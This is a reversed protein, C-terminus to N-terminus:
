VAAKQEEGHHPRLVSEESASAGLVAGDGFCLILVYGNSWPAVCLSFASGLLVSGLFGMFCGIPAFFMGVWCRLSALLIGLVSVVLNSFDSGAQGPLLSGTAPSSESLVPSQPPCLIATCLIIRSLCFYNPSLPKCRQRTCASSWHELYQSGPPPQAM